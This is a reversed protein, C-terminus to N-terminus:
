DRYKKPTFKKKAEEKNMEMATRIAIRLREKQEETAPEGYFSLDDGSEIGELLQDAQVAIDSKEKDSLEYYSKEQQSSKENSLLDDTSVELVNAIKALDESSVSTYNREINSIVQPTLSVKDALQKQTLRSEKRYYKIREGTNLNAVSMPFEGKLM